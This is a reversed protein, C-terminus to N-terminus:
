HPRLGWQHSLPPPCKAGNKRQHSLSQGRGRGGTLMFSSFAPFDQVSPLMSTPHCPSFSMRGEDGKASSRLTWHTLLKNFPASQQPGVPVRHSDSLAVRKQTNQKNKKKALAHKIKTGQGPILGLLSQVRGEATSACLGLWVMPIGLFRM